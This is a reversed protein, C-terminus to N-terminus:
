NEVGTKLEPHFKPDHEHEGQLDGIPVRGDIAPYGKCAFKLEAKHAHYLALCHDCIVAVAGDPPIHCVVCGWGRGAIPAKHHLHLINRVKKTGECICCPGLDSM